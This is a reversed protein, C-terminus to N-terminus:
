PNQILEAVVSLVKKFCACMSMVFCYYVKGSTSFLIKQVSLLSESTAVKGGLYGCDCIVFLGTSLYWQGFTGSAYEPAGICEINCPICSSSCDPLVRDSLGHEIKAQALLLQM